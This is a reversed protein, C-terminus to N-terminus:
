FLAGVEHRFHGLMTRYPEDLQARMRERYADDSEALDITIIGGAHGIVVNEHVSSLLDFALGKEPDEARTVIPCAWSM